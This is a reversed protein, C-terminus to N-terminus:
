FIDREKVKFNDIKKIFEKVNEEPYFYYHGKRNMRKDYLSM